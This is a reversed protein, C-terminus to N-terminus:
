PSWNLFNLVSLGIQINQLCNLFDFVKSHIHAGWMHRFYRYQKFMNFTNLCQKSNLCTCYAFTTYARDVYEFLYEFMNSMWVFIWYTNSYVSRWAKEIYALHQPRAHTWVHKFINLPHVYEFMNFLAWATWSRICTRFTWYRKFLKCFLESMNSYIYIYIYINLLDVLEVCMNFKAFRKFMFSFLVFTGGIEIFLAITKRGHTHPPPPAWLARPGHVFVRTKHGHTHPPPDWSGQDSFCFGPKTDTPPTDWGEMNSFCLGPKADAPPPEWGEITSVCFLNDQPQSRSSLNAWMEFLLLTSLSGQWTWTNSRMLDNENCKITTQQVFGQM